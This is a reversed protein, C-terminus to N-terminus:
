VKKKGNVPNRSQPQELSLRQLRIEKVSVAEVKNNTVTSKKYDTLLKEIEIGDDGDSDSDMDINNINVNGIAGLKKSSGAKSQMKNKLATLQKQQLVLAKDNVAKAKMKSQLLARDFEEPEITLAKADVNDLFFVASVFNTLLYGAEAILQNPRTYRQLYKLNSHLHAPNCTKITYIMMPLLEDAGPLSGDSRCGKLLQAISQTCRKICLLKDQPCKATALDALYQMPQQLVEKLFDDDHVQGYDKNNSSNGKSVGNGVKNHHHTHSNSNNSSNITNNHNSGSDSKQKSLLHMERLNRVCKIDLHETTLFGLSDIREKTRDNQVVDEVDSAFLLPHLKSFLLKECHAKSAEFCVNNEQAWVPSAKMQEFVHDLFVWIRSSWSQFEEDSGDAAAISSATSVPQGLAAAMATQYDSYFKTVFQQMSKVIETSSPLILKNLFGNYTDPRDSQIVMQTGNEEDAYDDYDILGAIITSVDCEEGDDVIESLFNLVNQICEAAPIKSKLSDSVTPALKAAAKQEQNTVSSNNDVDKAELVWKIRSRRAIQLLETRRIAFSDANMNLTGILFLLTPVM